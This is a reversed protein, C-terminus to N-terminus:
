QRAPLTSRFSEERISFSRTAGRQRGTGGERGLRDFDPHQMQAQRGFYGVKGYVALIDGSVIARSFYRAGRFWTLDLVGSQDALKVKFRASGRHGQEVGASRVTGVVTAMEGMRLGAISNM